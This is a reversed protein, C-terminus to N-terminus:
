GRYAEVLLDFINYDDKLMAQYTKYHIKYVLMEDFSLAKIKTKYGKSAELGVSLRDAIVQNTYQEKALTYCALFNLSVTKRGSKVMWAKSGSLHEKIGKNVLSQLARSVEFNNETLTVYDRLAWDIERQTTYKDARYHPCIDEKKM